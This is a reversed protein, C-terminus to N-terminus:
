KQQREPQACVGKPLNKNVPLTTNSSSRYPRDVGGGELLNTIENM